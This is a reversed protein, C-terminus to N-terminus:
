ETLKKRVKPLFLKKEKYTIRDANINADRDYKKERGIEGTIAYQHVTCDEALPNTHQRHPGDGVFPLAMQEPFLPVSRQVRIDAKHFVIKWLCAVCSDLMSGIKGRLNKVNKEKVM